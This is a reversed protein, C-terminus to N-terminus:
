GLRKVYKEASEPNIFDMKIQIHTDLNANQNIVHMLFQQMQLLFHPLM